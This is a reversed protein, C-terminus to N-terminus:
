RTEASIEKATKKLIEIFRRAAPSLYADRRYAIAAPRLWNMDKVPLIALRLYTTATQVVRKASVGLLDSTAVARLKLMVSDSVLMNRPQPLGREAFAQHLSQRSGYASAATSAWREETLDALSLSKRKALRHNAAAYVVFEDDWLPERTLDPFHFQEIHTVVIDLDGKRLAPLLAENDLVTVNLTVKPADMLLASCAKPLFGEANAPSAGIRLHGARGHAHDAVERALDSRALQLRRVHSLLAAGVATLEVGKPTRKVLKAQAAKELRRLSISLAPQGLGLAEAARGLHRHEAIVAFYEIDRLDMYM